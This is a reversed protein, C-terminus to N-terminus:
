DGHHHAGTADPAFIGEGADALAGIEIVVEESTTEFAFPIPNCGGPRGITPPYIASQCNACIIEPGDQYYGEPGCLVCADLAAVVEGSDLEIAFLRHSGESGEVLYRHLDGDALVSRSITVRGDDGPTLVEAPSLEAPERSYAFGLGLICLIGIGVASGVLRARRQRRSEARALRRDAPTEAKEPKEPERERGGPIALALLPLALIAVIFFFDYRVLPGILAMSTPNAPLWEAEALEHYGNVLLQVVFIMLAIATVKLFRGIDIRVSGRIFLVAFWVALGLGIFAGLAAMLGSTTLSVAALFLVTEVGERFVMLFTLGFVGSFVAAPQRREAIESLRSKVGRSLDRGHRWMWVLMTGVIVASAVYLVGEFAEENVALSRLFWAGAFSAAVATALGIWVAKLHEELGERKLFAVVIGVVLAAEVGERLTIILAEVM